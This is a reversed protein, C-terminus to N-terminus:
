MFKMLAVVYSSLYQAKSIFISVVHITVGYCTEM